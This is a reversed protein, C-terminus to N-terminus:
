ALMGQESEQGPPIALEVVLHHPMSYKFEPQSTDDSPTNNSPDKNAQVYVNCLYHVTHNMTNVWTELIQQNTKLFFCKYKPPILPYLNLLDQV